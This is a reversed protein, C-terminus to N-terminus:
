KRIGLNAIIKRHRDTNEKRLYALLSKRKGVLKLLGLKASHDKKQIELHATLHKIRHTFLAVQSEVAGADSAEKKPSFEKFLKEKGEKTLKMGNM